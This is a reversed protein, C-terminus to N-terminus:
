APYNNQTSIDSINKNLSCDNQTASLEVLNSKLALKHDTIVNL